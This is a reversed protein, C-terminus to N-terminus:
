AAYRRPQRRASTDAMLSQLCSHRLVALRAAAQHDGGAVARLRRTTLARLRDFFQDTVDDDNQELYYM